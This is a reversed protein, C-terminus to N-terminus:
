PTGRRVLLGLARAEARYSEVHAHANGCLTAKLLDTRRSGGMKRAQIHHVQIGGSCEHVLGYEGAQCTPHALLWAAREAAWLRRPDRKPRKAPKPWPKSTM